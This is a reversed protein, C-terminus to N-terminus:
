YKKGLLKLERFGHFLEIHFGSGLCFRTGVIFNKGIVSHLTNKKNKPM